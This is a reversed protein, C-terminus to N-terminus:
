RTWYDFAARAIAAIAAEREALSKTSDKIMVVIALRGRGNPLTVIGIDNTVISVGAVDAGTGTRHAVPTGPPLGGRIRKEGVRTEAMLDLLRSRSEKSLGRGEDIQRLLQVLADPTATDRPDALFRALAGRRAADPSEQIARRIGALTWEQRPPHPSVGYSDFALEAESRDIRIDDLGAADLRATVVEPGGSLPLLLDAATNDSDLLMAELLERLSVTIGGTPARESLPGPSRMDAPGLVVSQDLRLEGRDVRALFAVALPLKFVSAMPFRERGHFSAGHGTELHLVSVGVEGGAPAALTRFRAELAERSDPTSARLALLLLALAM